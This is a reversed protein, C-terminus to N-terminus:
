QAEEQFLWNKMASLDSGHGRGDLMDLFDRIYALYHRGGGMRYVNMLFQTIETLEADSVGYDTRSIKKIIIKLTVSVLADLAPAFAEQECAEQLGMYARLMDTTMDRSWPAKETAYQAALLQALFTWAHRTTADAKGSCLNKNIYHDVEVIYHYINGQRVAKKYEEDFAKGDLNKFNDFISRTSGHLYAAQTKEEFGIPLDNQGLDIWIEPKANGADSTSTLGYDQEMEDLLDKMMTRDFYAYRQNSKLKVLVIKLSFFFAEYDSKRLDRYALQLVQSYSLSTIDMRYIFDDASKYLADPFVKKAFYARDIFVQLKEFERLLAYNTIRHLNGLHDIKEVRIGLDTSAKENEVVNNM